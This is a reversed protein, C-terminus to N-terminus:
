IILGKAGGLIGQKQLEDFILDSPFSQCAGLFLIDENAEPQNVLQLM